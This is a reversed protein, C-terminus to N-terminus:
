IEEIEEVLRHFSEFLGRLKLKPVLFNKLGCHASNRNTATLRKHGDQKSPYTITAVSFNGEKHSRQLLLFPRITWDTLDTKLEWESLEISNNFINNKREKELSKVSSESSVRSDCFSMRKTLHDMTSLLLSWKVLSLANERDSIVVSIVIQWVKISLLIVQM